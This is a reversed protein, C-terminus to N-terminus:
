QRGRQPLPQIVPNDFFAEGEARKPASPVHLAPDLPPLACLERGAMLFRVFARADEPNRGKPLALSIGGMLNGVQSRRPMFTADLQDAVQPHKPERGRRRDRGFDETLSTRGSNM